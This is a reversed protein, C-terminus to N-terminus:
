DVKFIDKIVHLLNLDVNLGNYYALLLFIYILGIYSIFGLIFCKIGSWWTRDFFVKFIHIFLIIMILWDAFYRISDRHRIFIAEPVYSLIGLFSIIGLCFFWFTICEALNYKKYFFIWSILSIFPIFIIFRVKEYRHLIRGFEDNRQTIFDEWDWLKEGLFVVLGIMILFFMVPSFYTKRKGSFYGLYVEKPSILLDKTLKLVGKDAHTIAHTLEHWITHIDLRGISAKQGCHKCYKGEFITQCNNCTQM